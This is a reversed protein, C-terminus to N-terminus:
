RFSLLSCNLDIYTGSGDTSSHYKMLRGKEEHMSVYRDFATTHHMGFFEELYQSAIDLKYGRIDIQTQNNVYDVHCPCYRSMIRDGFTIRGSCYRSCLNDLLSDVCNCCTCSSGLCLRLRPRSPLYLFWCVCIITDVQLMVLPFYKRCHMTLSLFRLLLQRFPGFFFESWIFNSFVIRQM